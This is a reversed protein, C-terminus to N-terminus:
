KNKIIMKAIEWDFDDDYFRRKKYFLRKLMPSLCEKLWRPKQMLLSIIVLTLQNEQHAQPFRRYLFLIDSRSTEAM